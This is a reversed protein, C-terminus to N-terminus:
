VGQYASMAKKNSNINKLQQETEQKEQLCQKELASNLNIIKELTEIIANNPNELPFISNLIPERNQELQTLKDWLQEDALVQMEITMSLATKLAKLKEDETMRTSKIFNLPFEM